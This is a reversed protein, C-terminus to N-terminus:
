LFFRTIQCTNPKNFTTRTRVSLKKNIYINKNTYIVVLNFVPINVRFNRTNFNLSKIADISRKNYTYIYIFIWLSHVFNSFLVKDSM